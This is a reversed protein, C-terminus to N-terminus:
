IVSIRVMTGQPIDRQHLDIAHIKRNREHLTPKHGTGSPVIEMIRPGHVTGGNLAVLGNLFSM